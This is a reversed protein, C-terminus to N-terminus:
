ETQFRVNLRLRTTTPLRRPIEQRRRRLPPPVLAQIPTRIHPWIHAEILHGPLERLAMLILLDRERTFLPLNDM